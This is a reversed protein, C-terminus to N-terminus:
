CISFEKYASLEDDVLFFDFHYVEKDMHLIAKRLAELGRLTTEKRNFTTILVATKKM